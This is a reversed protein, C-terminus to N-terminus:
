RKEKGVAFPLFRDMFLIVPTELLMTAFLIALLLPAGTLIKKFPLTALYLVRLDLHTLLITLSDRGYRSLVPIKRNFLDPLSCLLLIGLTGTLGAGLMLFFNKGYVLCSLDTLGNNSSLYFAVSLLLISLAIRIVVRFSAALSELNTNEAAKRNLLYLLGGIGIWLTCVPLRLLATLFYAPFGSAGQLSGQLFFLAAATAAIVAIGTIRYVPKRSCILRVLLESLFLASLFWTVSPGYLSGAKEVHDLLVIAEPTRGHFLELVVYVALYLVSFFAYPILLRKARKTIGAGFGEERGKRIGMGFFYGSIVFFLPMSFSTWFVLARESMFGSHQLVVISIGIFRALDFAQIRANKQTSKDERM